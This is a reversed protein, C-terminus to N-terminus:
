WNVKIDERNTSSCSLGSFDFASQQFPTIAQYERPLVLAVTYKNSTKDFHKGELVIMTGLPVASWCVLM